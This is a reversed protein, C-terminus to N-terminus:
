VFVVASKVDVIVLISNMSCVRPLELADGFITSFNAQLLLLEVSAEIKLDKLGPLRGLSARPM